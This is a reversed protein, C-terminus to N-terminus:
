VVDQGQEGQAPEDNTEEWGERETGEAPGPAAPGQEDGDMQRQTPNRGSEDIQEEGSEHERETV